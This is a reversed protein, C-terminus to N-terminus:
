LSALTKQTLQIM